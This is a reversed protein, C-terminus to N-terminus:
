ASAERPSNYHVSDVDMWTIRAKRPRNQREEELDEEVLMRVQALLEQHGADQVRGGGVAVHAGAPGLDGDPQVDV